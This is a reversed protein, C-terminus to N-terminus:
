DAGFKLADFVLNGCLEVTAAPENIKLCVDSNQAPDPHPKIFFEYPKRQQFAPFRSQLQAIHEDAWKLRADIDTFDVTM